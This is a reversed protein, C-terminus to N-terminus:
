LLSCPVRTTAARISDGTRLVLGAFTTLVQARALIDTSRAQALTRQAATVDLLSRVGLAYSELAADYSQRAADLLAVAAQRQRLATTFRSYAAWVENAIQDRTSDAQAVAADTTSAALAVHNRRAGGDFVTWNLSLSATGLVGGAHVWQSPPQVGDLSQPGPRANVNLSPYLAARAEKISAEASRIDALRQRFDPRQDLARQIAQDVAEDISEPITLKDIPEVDIPVTPFMGLALALNGRAIQVDGRVAQLEFEAQATASRAELVDPLTGLGQEMRSETAQQVTQANALSARAAGEQGSANLLEYYAQAVHYAVKRHTDNFAFNAALVEARAADIRSRRAGFDFVTYNVSLEARYIKLTQRFFADGALIEQRNVQSVAAAALTPYLESRAVGLAAAQERARQWAVRTEPNHAQAIDILEALSYKRDLDVTFNSDPAPRIDRSISMDGTAQWPRAPSSPASQAAASSAFLLIPLMIKMTAFTSTRQSPMSSTSTPRVNRSLSDGSATSAM